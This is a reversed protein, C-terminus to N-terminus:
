ACPESGDLRRRRTGRRQLTRATAFAVVAAVPESGYLVWALATGPGAVISALACVAAAAVACVLPSLTM